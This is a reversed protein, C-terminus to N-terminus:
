SIILSASSIHIDTKDPRDEAPWASPTHTTAISSRSDAFSGPCHKSPQVDPRPSLDRRKSQPVRNATLTTQCFSDSQITHTREICAHWADMSSFMIRSAFSIIRLQSVCVVTRYAVHLLAHVNHMQHMPHMCIACWADLMACIIQLYSRM